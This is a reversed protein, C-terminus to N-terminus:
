CFRLSRGIHREARSLVSSDEIFFLCTGWQTMGVPAILPTSSDVVHSLSGGCSLVQWEPLNRSESRESPIVHPPFTKGRRGGYRCRVVGYRGEDVAQPRDGKGPPSPKSLKGTANRYVRWGLARYLLKGEPSAPEACGLSILCRYLRFCELFLLRIRLFAEVEAGMTGVVYLATGGRMWRRRATGRGRRPLNKLAKRPRERCVKVSPSFLVVNTAGIVTLQGSDVTLQFFNDITM